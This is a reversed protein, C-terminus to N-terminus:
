RVLALTIALRTGRRPGRRSCAAMYLFKTSPKANAFLATPPWWARDRLRLLRGRGRQSRGPYSGAPRPLRVGACRGLPGPDRLAETDRQRAYALFSHILKRFPGTRAVMGPV